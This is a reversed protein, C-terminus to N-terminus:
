YVLEYYENEITNDIEIPIGTWYSIYGKPTNTKELCVEDTFKAELYNSFKKTVKIREPPNAFVDAVLKLHANQEATLVTM